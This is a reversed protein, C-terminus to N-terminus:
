PIPLFTAWIHMAAYGRWPRWAEALEAVEAPRKCGLVQRLGLDGSPFADRHGLGRLSIYSATWPGIGPVELLLSEVSPPSPNDRRLVIGGNSVETALHRIARARARSLGIEEIPSNALADPTPFARSLPPAADSVTAGWRDSIRGALTRAAAVSVQQGLIARVALEFPDVTGPIRLGPHERVMPALTQDNELLASVDAVPADADLVRAALVCADTETLELARTWEVTATGCREVERLDIGLEGIRGGVTLCRRYTFPGVAEVNPMSRARLYGLLPAPSFPRTVTVVASELVRSVLLSPAPGSRLVPCRVM